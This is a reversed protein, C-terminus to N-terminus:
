QCQSQRDYMFDHDGLTETFKDVIENTTKGGKLFMMAAPADAKNIEEDLKSIVDVYPRSSEFTVLQVEISTLQKAATLHNDSM